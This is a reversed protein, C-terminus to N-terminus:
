MRILKMCMCLYSTGVNYNTCSYSKLRFAKMETENEPSNQKNNFQSSRQFRKLEHHRYLSISVDVESKKGNRSLWIHRKSIFSFVVSGLADKVEVKFDLQSKSQFPPHSSSSWGGKGKRKKRCCCCCFSFIKHPSLPSRYPVMKSELIQLDRWDMLM